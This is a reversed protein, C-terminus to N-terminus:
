NAPTAAQASGSLASLVVFANRGTRTAISAITDTPQVPGLGANNLRAEATGIDLKLVPALDSLPATQALAFLSMAPNARGASGLSGIAYYGAAIVSLALMSPMAIRRFYGLLPKWNRWLHVVVPALLVMSLVEHMEHFLGPSWGFYLAVGSVASVLFLGATLPTAIKFLNAKLSNM